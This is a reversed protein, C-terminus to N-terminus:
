RGLRAIVVDVHLRLRADAGNQAPCISVAMCRHLPQERGALHCGVPIGWSSMGCREWLFTEFLVDTCGLEACPM